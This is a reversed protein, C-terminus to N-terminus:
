CAKKGTTNLARSLSFTGLFYNITVKLEQGDHGGPVTFDLFKAAHEQRPTPTTTALEQNGAIDM